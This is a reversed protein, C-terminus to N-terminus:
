KKTKKEKEVPYGNEQLDTTINNESNEPKWDTKSSEWVNKPVTKIPKKKDTIKM